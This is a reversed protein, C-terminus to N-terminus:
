KDLEFVLGHGEPANLSGLQIGFVGGVADLM